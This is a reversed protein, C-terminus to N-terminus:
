VFEEKSLIIKGFIHNLGEEKNKIQKDGGELMFFSITFDM